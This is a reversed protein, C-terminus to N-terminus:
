GTDHLYLAKRRLVDQVLRRSSAEEKTRCAINSKTACNKKREKQEKTRNILIYYNNEWLNEGMPTLM